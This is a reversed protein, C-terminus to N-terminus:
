KSLEIIYVDNDNETIEVFIDINDLLIQDISEFTNDYMDMIKETIYEIVYSKIKDLDLETTLYIFNKKVNDCEILNHHTKLYEYFDIMSLSLNDKIAYLISRKEISNMDLVSNKQM